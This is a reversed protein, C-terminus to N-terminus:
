ETVRITYTGTKTSSYARIRVHYTGPNLALVLQAMLSTATDDDQAILTTTNNPGYLYM